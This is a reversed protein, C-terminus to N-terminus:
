GLCGNPNDTLFRHSAGHKPVPKSAWPSKSSGCRYWLNTSKHVIRRRRVPVSATSFAERKGGRMGKGVLEVSRWENVYIRWFCFMCPYKRRPASERRSLPTEDYFRAFRGIFRAGVLLQQAGWNSACLECRCWFLGSNRGCEGRQKGSFGQKVYPQADPM